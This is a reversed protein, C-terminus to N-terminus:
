GFECKAPNLRLGAERFRLLVRRLRADHEEQTSAHVIVDDMYAVCEHELGALVNDIMRQFTAPANVLGFPMVRFEFLGLHTAFATKEIDQRRIPIHWYGSTVDLASFVKSGALRAISDDARPMCYADVRTVQNLRRYDVCFRMKGDKKVVLV